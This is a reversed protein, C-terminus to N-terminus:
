DGAITMAGVLLSPANTSGRFELDDAAVLSAYMDLLNGAITIESVPFARAGGEIWFGSCGVSYDGTNSNVQPGFMDTVLLGTGADAILALTSTANAIIPPTGFLLLTPFTVLTGGGAVANIAGGAAAAIMLGLIETLSM